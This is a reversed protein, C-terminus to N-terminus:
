PHSVSCENCQNHKLRRGSHASTLILSGIGRRDSLGKGRPHPVVNGNLSEQPVTKYNWDYDPDGFAQAVFGPIYVKPDDNRNQGAELVLIQLKPNESLRNALVLGATGGGIIIIDVQYSATSMEFYKCFYRPYLSPIYFITEQSINKYNFRQFLSLHLM